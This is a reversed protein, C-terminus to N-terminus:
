DTRPATKDRPRINTLEAGLTRDEHFCANVHQIIGALGGHGGDVAECQATSKFM